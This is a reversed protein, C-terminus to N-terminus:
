KENSLLRRLSDPQCHWVQTATGVADDPNLSLALMSGPTFYYNSAALGTFFSAIYAIDPAHFIWISCFQTTIDHLVDIAEQKSFDPGLREDVLQHFEKALSGLQGLEQALLKRSQCARKLPSSRLEGIPWSSAQIFQSVNKIDECGVSTLSRNYDDSGAEAEAHRMLILKM